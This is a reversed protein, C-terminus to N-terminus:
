ESNNLKANKGSVEQLCYICLCRTFNNRIFAQVKEDLEIGNCQCNAIDDVNCKFPKHCRPCFVDEMFLGPMAPDAIYISWNNFGHLAIM